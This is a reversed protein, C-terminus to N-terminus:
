LVSVFEHVSLVSSHNGLPFPPSHSSRPIQPSHRRQLPSAILDQQIACPVIDLWKHHLRIVVHRFSYIYIYVCVYTHRPRKATCCFNVSCQVDITFFTKLFSYFGPPCLVHLSVLDGGGLCPKGVEAGPCTPSSFERPQPGAQASQGGSVPRWHCGQVTVVLFLERRWPRGLLM